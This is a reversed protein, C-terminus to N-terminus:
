DQQVLRAAAQLLQAQSFPKALVAVDRFDIPLNERGYGTVFLFPIKRRSLAAAIEDVPTGQLNGDLLAADLENSGIIDLAETATSSGVTEAGAEQLAATIDLAILPEDEVVLFRTGVLKGPAKQVAQMQADPSAGNVLEAALSPAGESAAPRALPLAIEWVIGDRTSSMRAEGGEGKASQEILTTGFGRTVPASVGRGGREEWRLRLLRDEVTWGITVWGSPVSFAGYKSANTGLEHLMLAMHLTTQPELRVPPGWATLRTEDVAGLLLQDRILDRLDAGQWTAASLLSHVRSLAQIRGAFSRAFEVPDKTRRLTHQVIAQVTALTNKVRHNLESVLLQQTQEAQKRELLDAAQRALADLLRLEHDGPRHPTKYHTSFLGLIQGSRSV